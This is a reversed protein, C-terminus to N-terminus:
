NNKKNNLFYKKFMQLARRHRTKVTNAPEGLVDAMERFKLGDEYRLKIAERQDAPLNGLTQRIENRKEETKIIELPSENGGEINELFDLGNDAQLSSFSEPRKKKLYDLSTNKAITFLWTRFKYDPKYKKIKKWMKVFVEQTVDEADDQEGIYKYVFGYVANLNQQILIELSKKDGKLYKEVLQENTLNEM